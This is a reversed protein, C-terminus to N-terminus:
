SGEWGAKKAHGAQLQGKAKAFCGWPSTKPLQSCRTRKQPLLNVGRMSEKGRKSPLQQMNVPTSSSLFFWGMAPISLNFFAVGTRSSLLLRKNGSM